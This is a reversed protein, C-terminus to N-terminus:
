NCYADLKFKSLADTCATASGSGIVAKCGTAAAAPMNPSKCCSALDACSGCASKDINGALWSVLCVDGPSGAPMPAGGKHHETGRAKRVITLRQPDAGHDALVQAMLEPELLTVARYTAEYEAPTTVDGSGMNNEAGTFNNPDLRLGNVGYVRMNRAINGHCDLSGCHNELTDGLPPFTTPDPARYVDRADSPPASCAAAALLTVGVPMLLTWLPTRTM